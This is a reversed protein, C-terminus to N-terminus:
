SRTRLRRERRPDHDWALLIAIPDLAGAADPDLAADVALRVALVRDAPTVGAPQAEARDAEVEDQRTIRGARPM